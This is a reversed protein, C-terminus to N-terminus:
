ALVALRLVDLERAREGVVGFFVGVGIRGEGAGASLSSTSTATM